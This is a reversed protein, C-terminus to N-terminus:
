GHAQKDFSPRVSDTYGTIVTQGNIQLECADGPKIQWPQSQGAWRDMVGLEFAGACQEIGIEARLTKWGSFVLGGVKLSVVPSSSM